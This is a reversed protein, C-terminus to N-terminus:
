RPSRECRHRHPQGRDHQERRWQLSLYRDVGGSQGRRQGRHRQRCRADDRRDHQLVRRRPLDRHPQGPSRATAASASSIARSRTAADGHSGLLNIGVNNGSIVNRAGPTTGGITNRPVGNIYVGVDNGLVAEGTEDTGINNGEIATGATPNFQSQTAFIEIGVKFGSIVNGRRPPTGGITRRHRAHQQRPHGPRAPGHPAHRAGSIDTGIFNGEVVNNGAGQGLLQIGTSTNGSILNRAGSATGGITNGAVDNIFVGTNNGRPLTGTADTGILNGQVLNGTAGFGLIQVGVGSGPPM